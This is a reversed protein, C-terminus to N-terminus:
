AAAAIRNEAAFHARGGVATLFGWGAIAALVLLTFASRTTYFSSASLNIPSFLVYWFFLGAVFSLLGVRVLIAIWVVARCIALPWYIEIPDDWFLLIPSIALVLVADALWHNRLAMRFLLLLVLVGLGEILATQLSGAIGGASAFTKGLSWVGATMPASPARGFLRPVLYEGRISLHLGIGVVAGILVDRGVLPDRFDWALIRNWSVLIRPWRARVFPELALYVIWLTAAWFLAGGMGSKSLEWESKVDTTHNARFLWATMAAVLLCTAIRFAGRRDGRKLRWNRRALIIGGIWAILVVTLYAVDAMAWNRPIPLAAPTSWPYMLEFAAAHGGLSAAEIRVPDGPAPSLPEWAYRADAFFRPPRQPVSVRFADLDFGSAAFFP